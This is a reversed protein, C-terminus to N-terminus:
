HYADRLEKYRIANKQKNQKEKKKVARKTRIKEGEEKV